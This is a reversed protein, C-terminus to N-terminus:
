QWSDPALGSHVGLVRVTRVPPLDHWGAEGQEGALARCPIAPAGAMGLAYCWSKSVNIVAGSVKRYESLLEHLAGLEGEGRLLVYIDDAHVVVKVHGVDGATGADGTPATFSHLRGDAQVARLLLDLALVEVVPVVSTREYLRLLHGIFEEPLGRDRLVVWLYERGVRGFAKSQDLQIVLGRWRGTAAVGFVKRMLAHSTDMRQGPVASTQGPHVLAEAVTALRVLLVRALLRYDVNNVTLPRWNSVLTPDRDKPLFRLLGGGPPMERFSEGQSQKESATMMVDRAAPEGRSGSLPAWSDEDRAMMEEDEDQGHQGTPFAEEYVDEELREEEEEGGAPSMIAAERASSVGHGAMLRSRLSLVDAVRELITALQLGMTPPRDNDEELLLRHAVSFLKYVDRHTLKSMDKKIAIEPLDLRVVFFMWVRILDAVSWPENHIMDLLVALDLAFEGEGLGVWPDLSIVYPM